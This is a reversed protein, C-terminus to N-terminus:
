LRQSCGRTRCINNWLLLQPGALADAPADVVRRMQAQDDPSMQLYNLRAGTEDLFAQYRKIDDASIALRFEEVHSRTLAPLRNRQGM